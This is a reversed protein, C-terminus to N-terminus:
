AAGVREDLETRARGVLRPDQEVREAVRARDRAEHREVDALLRQAVRGRGHVAVVRRHGHVGDDAVELVVEARDGATPPPDDREEAARDAVQQRRGAGLEQEVDRLPEPEVVVQQEAEIEHLVDVAEFGGVVVRLADRGLEVLVHERHHVALEVGVEVDGRNSCTATNSRVCERISIRSRATSACVTSTRASPRATGNAAPSSIRVSTLAFNM